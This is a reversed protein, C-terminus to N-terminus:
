DGHMGACVCICAGLTQWMRQVGLDFNLLDFVIPMIGIVKDPCAAGVLWTTAGRKSAGAIIYKSIVSKGGTVKSIYATATDMARAGARAMPYYIVSDPTQWSASANGLM